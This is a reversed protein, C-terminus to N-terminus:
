DWGTLKPPQTVTFPTIGMQGDGNCASIELAFLVQQDHYVNEVLAPDPAPGFSDIDIFLTASQEITGCPGGGNGNGTAGCPLPKSTPIGDQLSLITIEDPTLGGGDAWMVALMPPTGNGAALLDQSIRNMGWRTNQIVDSVEPERGFAVQGKQLLGLVSAMVVTTIAMATLLEILSFGAEGSGRNAM